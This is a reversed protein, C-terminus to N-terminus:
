MGNYQWVSAFAHGVLTREEEESTVLKCLALVTHKPDALCQDRLRKANM